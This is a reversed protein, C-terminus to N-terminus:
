LGVPCGLHTCMKSYAIYGAPTWSARGNPLRGGESVTKIPTTQLRILVTQDISQDQENQAYGEPFV